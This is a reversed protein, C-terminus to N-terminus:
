VKVFASVAVAEGAEHVLVQGVPARSAVSEVTRWQRRLFPAARPSPAPTGIRHRVWRGHQGPLYTPPLPRAPPCMVDVDCSCWFQVAAPESTAALFVYADMRLASSSM